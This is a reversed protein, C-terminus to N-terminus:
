KRQDFNHFNLCGNSFDAVIAFDDFTSPMQPYNTGIWFM